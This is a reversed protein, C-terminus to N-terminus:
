IAVVRVLSGLAYGDATTVIAEDLGLGRLRRIAMYVRASASEAGMREGPWGAERVETHTLGEGRSHKDALASLIRRLAARRSLDIAIRGASGGALVIARGEGDLSLTLEGREAREVERTAAAIEAILFVDDIDRAVIKTEALRVEAQARAHRAAAIRTGELLLEAECVIDDEARVAELAGIFQAEAGALDGSVRALAVDLPAIRALHYRDGVSAFCARAAEHSASAAEHDNMAFSTSAQNALAIGAAREDNARRAAALSRVYHARAAPYDGRAHEVLGLAQEAMAELALDRRAHASALASQGARRAGDLDGTPRQTFCVLSLVWGVAREDGSEKALDLAREAAAIAERFRGRLAFFRALARQLGSLALADNMPHAELALRLVGYHLDPPGHRVLIPDLALALRRAADAEGRRTAYEFATLLNEREAADTLALCASLHRRRVEDTGGRAELKSEAFTRVVTLMEFRSGGETSESPRVLSASRLAQLTTEADADPGLVATASTLTFGGRFVSLAALGVRATEDLMAFSKDLVPDLSRSTSELVREVGISAIRSALLEIGLPLGSARAVLTRADADSVSWPCAARELADRLLVVAAEPPLPELEIVHESPVDLRKRSSVIVRVRSTGDLWATVLTAVESRLHEAEDFVLVTGRKEMSEAAREIMAARSATRAGLGLARVTAALVGAADVDRLFVVCTDVGEDALERALDRVVRTKGVGPAGVFTLLRAGQELRERAAALERERGVTAM